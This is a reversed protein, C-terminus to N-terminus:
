SNNVIEEVETKTPMPWPVEIDLDMQVAQSLIMKRGLDYMQELWHASVWSKLDDFSSFEGNDFRIVGVILVQAFGDDDNAHLHGTMLALDDQVVNGGVRWTLGAQDDAGISDRSLEIRHVKFEYEIM